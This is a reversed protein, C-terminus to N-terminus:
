QSDRDARIVAAAQESSIQVPLMLFGEKNRIPKVLKTEKLQIQELQIAGNSQQVVNFITKPPFLDPCTLRGQDDAQLTM